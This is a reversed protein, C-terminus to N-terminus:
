QMIWPGSCVRSGQWGWYYSCKFQLLETAIIAASASQLVHMSRGTAHCIYLLWVDTCVRCRDADLEQMPDECNPLMVDLAAPLLDYLVGETLDKVRQDELDMHHQLRAELQQKVRGAPTSSDVFETAAAATGRADRGAATHSIKACTKSCWSSRNGTLTPATGAGAAAALHSSVNGM